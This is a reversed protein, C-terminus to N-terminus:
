FVIEMIRTKGSPMAGLGAPGVGSESGPGRSVGMAPGQQGGQQPGPLPSGGGFGANPNGVGRGGAAGWSAQPQQMFAPNASSGPHLPHLQPHTHQSGDISGDGGMGPSGASLGTQYCTQNSQPFFAHLLLDHVSFQTKLSYMM